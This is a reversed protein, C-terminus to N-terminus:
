GRACDCSRGCTPCSDDDDDTDDHNSYDEDGDDSPFYEDLSYGEFFHSQKCHVCDLYFGQDDRSYQSTNYQHEGTPSSTCNAM